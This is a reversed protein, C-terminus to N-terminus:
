PGLPLAQRRLEVAREALADPDPSVRPELTYHARRVDHIHGPWLVEFFLDLPIWQYWPADVEWNTQLTEYGEKRITVGYDGYWLFDTSVESRGVEQDNLYILAQPPDTTIVMTRRVCGGAASMAAVLALGLGTSVRTNM